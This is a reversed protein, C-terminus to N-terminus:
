LGLGNVYNKLDECVSGKLSTSISSTSSGDMATLTFRGDLCQCVITSGGINNEASAVKPFSLGDLATALGQCATGVRLSNTSTSNSEVNILRIRVTTNDCSAAILLEADPNLEELSEVSQTM